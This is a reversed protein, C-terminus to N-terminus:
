GRKAIISNLKSANYFLPNNRLDDIDNALQAYEAKINGRLLRNGMQIPDLFSMVCRHVLAYIHECRRAMPVNNLQQMCKEYEEIYKDMVEQPLDMRKFVGITDQCIRKLRDVQSEYIGFGDDLNGGFLLTWIGNLCYNIVLPVWGNRIWVDAGKEDVAVMNTASMVKFLKNLAASLNSGYGYRTVYEDAWREWLFSQNKNAMFDSYKPENYGGKQIFDRNMSILIHSSLAIIFSTIPAHIAAVALYGLCVANIFFGWITAWFLYSSDNVNDKKNSDFSDAVNKIAKHVAEVMKANLSSNAVMFKGADPDALIERILKIRETIPASHLFNRTLAAKLGLQFFMDGCHEVLSMMHGIEHLVIATLEEATFYEFNVNLTDRLLFASYCDFFLNMSIDQQLFKKVGLAGKKKDFTMSIKKLEEYTKESFDINDAYLANGTAADVVKGMNKESCLRPSMAFFFSINKSYTIQNLHLGTYQLLLKPLDRSITREAFDTVKTVIRRDGRCTERYAIISQFMDRISDAFKMDVQFDIAEVGVSEANKNLLSGLESFSSM